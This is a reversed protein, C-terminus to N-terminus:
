APSQNLVHEVNKKRTEYEVTSTKNKLVLTLHLCPLYVYVFSGLLLGIIYFEIKFSSQFMFTTTLFVIIVFGIISARSHDIFDELFSPTWYSFLTHAVATIYVVYLPINITHLIFFIFHIFVYVVFYPRYLVKTLSYWGEAPPQFWWWLSSLRGGFAM